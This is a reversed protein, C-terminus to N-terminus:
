ERVSFEVTNMASVVEDETFGTVVITDLTDMILQNVSDVEAKTSVGQLGVSFTWQQLWFEIGDGIVNDGLGSDKLAKELRSTPTGVLLENVIFWAIETKSDLARDNVLWTIVVRHDDQNSTQYPMSVRVPSELELEQWEVRSEQRIDSRHEYQTLYSHAQDMGDRVDEIPGYLFIQANSPHYFKNYFAVFDNHSLTPIKPPDGGSDFRYSTKPFLNKQAYRAMLEDPDSYVGKMESMVVGRLQLSGDDTEEIRWGEQRLIWSGEPTVALPRFVADLYVAVLNSFDISNRSAVAYATRDDFTFANLFTHLSGREMENFPDKVPFGESGDLVSHELMHAVGTDDHPITRFSIAFVSDQSKDKPILTLVETKTTKHRYVVMHAQVEPIYANQTVDYGEHSVENPSAYLTSVEPAAILCILLVALSILVTASVIFIVKRRRSVTFNDKTPGMRNLGDLESELPENSFWQTAM